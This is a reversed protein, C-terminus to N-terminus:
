WKSNCRLLPMTTGSSYDDALIRHIHIWVKTVQDISCNCGCRSKLGDAIEDISRNSYVRYM